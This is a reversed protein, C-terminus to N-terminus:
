FQCCVGWLKEDKIDAKPQAHNGSLSVLPKATTVPKMTPQRKLVQGIVSEVLDRM